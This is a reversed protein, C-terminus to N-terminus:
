DLCFTKDKRSTKGPASNLQKGDSLKVSDLLVIKVIKLCDFELQWLIIRQNM